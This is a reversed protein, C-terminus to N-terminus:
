RLDQIRGLLFGIDVPGGKTLAENIPLHFVLGDHIHLGLIAPRRRAQM